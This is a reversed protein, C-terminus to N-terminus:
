IEIIATKKPYIEKLLSVLYNFSGDNYILVDFNEKYAEYKASDNVLKEKEYNVFGIKLSKDFKISQVSHSDAVNDGMLIINNFENNENM